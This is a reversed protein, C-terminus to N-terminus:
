APSNRRRRWNRRCRPPKPTFSPSSRLTSGAQSWVMNVKGFIRKVDSETMTTHMAPTAKSQVLHVRVPVTLVPLKAEAKADKAPPECISRSASAVFLLVACLARLLAPCHRLVAPPIPPNM